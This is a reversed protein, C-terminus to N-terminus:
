STISSYSLPKSLSVWLYRCSGTQRESLITYAPVTERVTGTVFNKRQGPDNYTLPVVIGAARYMNELDVFYQPIASRVENDVVSPQNVDKMAPIM